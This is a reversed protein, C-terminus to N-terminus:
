QWQKKNSCFFNFGDVTIRKRWLANAYIKPQSGGSWILISNIQGNEWREKKKWECM